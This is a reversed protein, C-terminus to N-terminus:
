RLAAAEATAHGRPAWVWAPSSLAAPVTMEPAGFRSEETMVDRGLARGLMAMLRGGSAGAGAMELLELRGQPLLTAGLAALVWGREEATEPELVVTGLTVRGAGGPGVLRISELPALEAAVEAVQVLGDRAMDLVLVAVDEGAAALLAGWATQRPDLVLLHRPTAADHPM